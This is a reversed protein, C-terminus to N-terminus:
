PPSAPVIGVYTTIHDDTYKKFGIGAKRLAKPVIKGLIIARGKHIERNIRYVKNVLARGKQNLDSIVIRGGPRTLRIMEQLVREPRRVDHLLNASVTTAFSGNQFRMNQADMNLFKIRGSVKYRRAYIKAVDQAQKSTDVSTLKYGNCALTYAMRGPGTGVDLIPENIRGARKLVSQRAAEMDYGHRKFLLRIREYQNFKRYIGSEVGGSKQASIIVFGGKGFGRRPNQISDMKDPLQLITQYHSIRNFGTAKLLDEIEGVSFFNAKRYFISRKSKYFKGLFSNRDIIGIIIRGNKRLARNAEKLVKQPDEVFCITIIIAVYDFASNGFELHEGIGLRADVGRQRAIAIMNRAPDIGVEIGLPAAFRGTGVGIELGEGSRPLVRSVAKLESLYAFRNKDYWRDYKKYYRQFIDKM